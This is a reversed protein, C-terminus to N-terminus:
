WVFFDFMRGHDASHWVPFSFGDVEALEAPGQVTAGIKLLMEASTSFMPARQFTGAVLPITAWSLDPNAGRQLTLSKGHFDGQQSRGAKVFGASLADLGIAQAVWGHHHMGSFIVINGDAFEVYKVQM